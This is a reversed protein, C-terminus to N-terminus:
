LPIEKWHPRRCDWESQCVTHVTSILSWCGGGEAWLTCSQGLSANNMLSSSTFITVHVVEKEEERYVSRFRRMLCPDTLYYLLVLLSFPLMSKNLFFLCNRSECLSDSVRDSDKDVHGSTTELVRRRWFFMGMMRETAGECSQQSAAPTDFSAAFANWFYLSPLRPSESSGRRLLEDGRWSFSVHQPPFFYGWSLTEECFFRGEAEQWPRHFRPLCLLSVSTLDSAGTTGALHLRTTPPTNKAWVDRHTLTVALLLASDGNDREGGVLGLM